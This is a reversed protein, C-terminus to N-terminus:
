KIASFFIHSLFVSPNNTSSHHHGGIAPNYYQAITIYGGGTAAVSGVRCIGVVSIDTPMLDTNTPILRYWYIISTSRLLCGGVWIQLYRSDIGTLRPRYWNTNTPIPRHGSGPLPSSIPQTNGTHFGHLKQQLDKAHVLVEWPTFIGEFLLEAYMSGRVVRAKTPTVNWM